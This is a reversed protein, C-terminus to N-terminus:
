SLEYITSEDEESDTDDLFKGLLCNNQAEQVMKRAESDVDGDSPPPTCDLRRQQMMALTEKTFELQLVSSSM